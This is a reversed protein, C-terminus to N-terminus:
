CQYVQCNFDSSIWAVAPANCKMDDKAGYIRPVGQFVKDGPCQVCGEEVDAQAVLRDLDASDGQLGVLMTEGRMHLGSGACGESITLTQEMSAACRGELDCLSGDSDFSECGTVAAPSVLCDVDLGGCECNCAGDGYWAVPCHWTDYPGGPELPGRALSQPDSPVRTGRPASRQLTLLMRKGTGNVGQQVDLATVRMRERRGWGQVLIQFPVFPWLVAENYDLSLQTETLRSTPVQPIFQTRFASVGDCEESDYTFNFNNVYNIVYSYDM